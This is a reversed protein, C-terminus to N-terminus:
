KYQLAKAKDDLRTYIRNLVKKLIPAYSENKYAKLLYPLAEKYIAKPENLAKDYKNFDNWNPKSKKEYEKKERDFIKSAKHYKIMGIAMNAYADDPDLELVKNYVATAKDIEGTNQYAAGQYSFYTPNDPFWETLKKTAGLLKDWQKKKLYLHALSQVISQQFDPFAKMKETLAWEYADDNKTRKALSILRDYIDLRPVKLEISKKYYNIADDTKKLQDSALGAYSYMTAKQISDGKGTEILSKCDSLAQENNGNMLETEAKSLKAEFDQAHVSLAMVFLLSAAVFFSKIKMKLTEKTNLDCNSEPQNTKIRGM